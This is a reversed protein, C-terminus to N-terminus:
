DPEKSKKLRVLRLEILFRNFEVLPVPEDHPIFTFLVPM